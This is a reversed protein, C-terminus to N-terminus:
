LALHDARGTARAGAVAVIESIPFNGGGSKNRPSFEPARSFEILDFNRPKFFYTLFDPLLLISRLFFFAFIPHGAPCPPPADPVISGGV